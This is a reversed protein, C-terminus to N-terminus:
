VFDVRGKQETFQTQIYRAAKSVTLPQSANGARIYFKETGKHMLYAPHDSPQVLVACITEGELEPFTVELYQRYEVGVMQNFASNFVNEFGDVNKKRLTKLDPQLGLIEGEDGVGILMAGGNTNMFGVLGKMVPVYLEKNAMQRYYDWMLSSKFEVYQNEGGAILRPVPQPEPLAKRALEPEVLGELLEVYAAPNTVEKVYAPSNAGSHHIILTGYGFRRGLLGQKTDVTTIAQTDVLKRDAMLNGPRYVIERNDIEYVPVYWTIFAIAITFAQVLAAIITILLTFSVTRSLAFEAYTGEAGLLVVVFIPLFAFFFEIVVALKLFFFPSKRVTIKDLKM